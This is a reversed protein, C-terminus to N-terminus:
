FRILELCRLRGEPFALAPSPKTDCQLLDPAPTPPRPPGPTVATRTQRPCRAWPPRGQRQESHLFGEKRVTGKQPTQGSLRLPTPAPVPTAGPRLSVGPSAGATPIRPWPTEATDGPPLLKAGARFSSMQM